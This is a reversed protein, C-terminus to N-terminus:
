AQAANAAGEADRAARANHVYDSVGKVAAVIHEMTVGEVGTTADMIAALQCLLVDYSGGSFNLPVGDGKTLYDKFSFRIESKGPDVPDYDIIITTAIAELSLDTGELPKVRSNM